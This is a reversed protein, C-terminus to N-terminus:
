LYGGGAGKHDLYNMRGLDVSLTSMVLSGKRSAEAEEQGVTRLKKM